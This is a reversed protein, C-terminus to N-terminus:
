AVDSPMSQWVETQMALASIVLRLRTTFAETRDHGEYMTGTWALVRFAADASATDASWGCSLSHRVAKLATHAAIWMRARPTLPDTFLVDDLAKYIGEDKILATTLTAVRRTVYALEWASPETALLVQLIDYQLSKPKAIGDMEIFAQDVLACVVSKRRDWFLMSLAWRMLAETGKATDIHAGFRYSLTHLDENRVGFKQLYALEM